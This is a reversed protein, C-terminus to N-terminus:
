LCGGKAPFCLMTETEHGVVYQAIDVFTKNADEHTLGRATVVDFTEDGFDCSKPTCGQYEEGDWGIPPCPPEVYDPHEQDDYHENFYGCNCSKNYAAPHIVFYILNDTFHCLGNVGPGWNGLKQTSCTRKLRTPFVVNCHVIMCASVREHIRAQSIAVTSLAIFSTILKM